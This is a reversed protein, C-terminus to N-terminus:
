RFFPLYRRHFIAFIEGLFALYLNVEVGTSSFASLCRKIKVLIRIEFLSFFPSFRLFGSIIEPKETPMKKTLEHQLRWGSKFRPIYTKCVKAKGSPWPAMIKIFTSRSVPNSGAIDAKALCREVM